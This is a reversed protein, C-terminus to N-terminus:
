DNRLEEFLPITFVSRNFGTARLYKRVPYSGVLRHTLFSQLSYMDGDGKTVDMPQGSDRFIVELCDGVYLSCDVQTLKGDNREAIATCMEEILLVTRIITKNPVNSKRLYVEANGVMKMFHDPICDTEYYRWKKVKAKDMLLPFSKGQYLYKLTAMGVALACFPSLLMGLWIGTMGLWNGLSIVLLLQFVLYQLANLYVAVGLKGTFVFYSIYLQLAVFMFSSPAFIYIGEVAQAAAVSDRVGMIWPISQAFAIMSACIVCASVMGFRLATRLVRKIGALNNEGLFVGILPQMANGMGDIGAIILSQMNLVICFAVLMQTGYRVSIFSNVTFTFVATYLYLSADCISYQVVSKMDKWCMRFSFQVENDKKLFHISCVLINVALSMLTGLAIGSIGIKLCFFISFGINSLVQSVAAVVALHESNENIIVEYLLHSMPLLLPLWLIGNFYSSAFSYLSQPISLMDLITDQFLFAALALIGGCGICAVVGNSFFENARKRNMKGVEQSMCIATGFSLLLALFVVVQFFPSILSLAALGQEGLLQGAIVNDSLLTLYEALMGSTGAAFLSAYKRDILTRM